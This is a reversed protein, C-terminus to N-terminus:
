KQNSKTWEEDKALAGELFEDFDRKEPSGIFKTQHVLDDSFAHLLYFFADTEDQIINKFEENPISDPNRYRAGFANTFISFTDISRELPELVLTPVCIALQDRAIVHNLETDPNGEGRTRATSYFHAHRAAIYADYKNRRVSQLETERDISKQWRYGIVGAIFLLVTVITPLLEV